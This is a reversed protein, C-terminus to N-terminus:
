TTRHRPNQCPLWWPSLMLYGFCCHTDLVSTIIGPRSNAQFMKYGAPAKAAKSGLM